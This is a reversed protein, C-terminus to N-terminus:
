DRAAKAAELEALVAAERRGIDMLAAHEPASPPAAAMAEDCATQVRKEGDIMGPLLSADGTIASRVYVIGKTVTGVFSGAEGHDGPPLLRTVDALSTQKGAAAREFLSKLGPDEVSSIAQQYGELADALRDRLTTLKDVFDDAM